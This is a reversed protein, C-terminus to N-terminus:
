IEAFNMQVKSWNCLILNCYIIIYKINRGRLPPLFILVFKSWKMILKPVARYTAIKLSIKVFKTPLYIHNLGQYLEGYLCHTLYYPWVLDFLTLNQNWWKVIRIKSLMLSLAFHAVIQSGKLRLPYSRLFKIKKKFFTSIESVMLSLAFCRFNPIVHKIIYLIVM